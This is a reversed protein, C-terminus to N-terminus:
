MILKHGPRFDLLLQSGLEVSAPCEVSSTREGTQEADGMM